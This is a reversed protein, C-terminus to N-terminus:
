QGCLGARHGVSHCRGLLLLLLLLMRWQTSVDGMRIKRCCGCGTGTWVSELLEWRLLGHDAVAENPVGLALLAEPEVLHHGRRHGVDCMGELVLLALLLLLLLLVLRLPRMLMRRM